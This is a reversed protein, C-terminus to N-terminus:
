RRHEPSDPLVPDGAAGERMARVFRDDPRFCALLTLLRPLVCGHHGIVVNGGADGEATPPAPVMGIAFPLCTLALVNEGPRYPRGCIPCNRCLDPRLERDRLSQYSEGISPPENAHRDNNM